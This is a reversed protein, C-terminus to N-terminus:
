EYEDKRQDNLFNQIRNRLTGEIASEKKISITSELWEKM